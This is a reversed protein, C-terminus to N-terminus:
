DYHVEIFSKATSDMAKLIATLDRYSGHVVITKNNKRISAFAGLSFNEGIELKGGARLFAAINPYTQEEQLQDHACKM